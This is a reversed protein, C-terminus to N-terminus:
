KKRPDIVAYDDVRRGDGTNSNININNNNSSITDRYSDDIHRKCKLKGVFWGDLEKEPKITKIGTLDPPEYSYEDDVELLQGHYAETATVPQNIVAAPLSSKISRITETFQMLKEM